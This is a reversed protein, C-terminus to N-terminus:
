ALEFYNLSPQLPVACATSITKELEVAGDPVYSRRILLSSRKRFERRFDEKMCAYLLPNALSSLAVTFLSANQLALPSLDPRNVINVTTMYLIPLWSVIFIVVIAMFVKTVKAETKVRRSSIANASRKRINQHHKRLRQAIKLYATFIAGYPLIVFIGMLCFLYVKHITADPITSWTVPLISILLSTAWIIVILKVFHNQVVQRYQFPRSVAIYRDWTVLGINGVGSLLVFAIVYGESVAVKSDPGSLHIPYFLGGTLIDSVALSVLFGNTFTRLRASSVVLVCLILNTAVILVALCILIICEWTVKM